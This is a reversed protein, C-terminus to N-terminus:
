YLPNWPLATPAHRQCSTRIAGLNHIPQTISVSESLAKM